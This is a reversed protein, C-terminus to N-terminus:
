LNTVYLPLLPGNRLAFDLKEDTGSRRHKAAVGYSAICSSAACPRARRLPPGGQHQQHGSAQQQRPCNKGPRVQRWQYKLLGAAPWRTRFFFDLVVGNAAFRAQGTLGAATAPSGKLSGEALLRTKV